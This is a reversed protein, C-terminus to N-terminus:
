FVFRNGSTSHVIIFILYQMLPFIHFNKTTTKIPETFSFKKRLLLISRIDYIHRLQNFTSWKKQWTKENLLQEKSQKWLNVYFVYFGGRCYKQM